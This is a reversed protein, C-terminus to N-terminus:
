RSPKRRKGNFLYDYIRRILSKGPVAPEGPLMEEREAAPSLTMHTALIRGIGEDAPPPALPADHAREVPAERPVVKMSTRLREIKTKPTFKRKSAM